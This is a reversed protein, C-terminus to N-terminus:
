ILVLSSLLLSSSLDWKSAELANRHQDDFIAQSVPDNIYNFIFEKCEEIADRLIIHPFIYLLRHDATYQQRRANVRYKAGEAMNETIQFAPVKKGADNYICDYQIFVDESYLISTGSVKTYDIDITETM